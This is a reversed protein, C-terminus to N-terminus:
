RRARRGAVLGIISAIMVLAYAAQLIWLIGGRVEATLTSWILAGPVFLGGLVLAMRIFQWRVKALLAAEGPLTARPPGAGMFLDTLRVGASLSLLMLPGICLAIAAALLGFFGAAPMRAADPWFWQLLPLMGFVIVLAAGAIFLMATVLSFLWYRGSGVGAGLAAMTEREEPTYRFGPWQAGQTLAWTLRMNAAWYDLIRNARM